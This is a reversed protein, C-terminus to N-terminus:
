PTPEIRWRKGNWAEALSTIDPYTSGGVAVCRTASTCSVSGLFNTETGAPKPSAQTTWTSGKWGLILSTGQDSNTGVATCVRSSTCSVGMLTSQGAAADFPTPEVVWSAGNWGEALPAFNGSAPTYTGVATCVRSSRCAVGRLQAATEGAPVPTAVLTWRRGDWREATAVGVSCVSAGLAEYCGSGGVAFCSRSSSCAVASLAGVGSRTPLEQWRRGNWRAIMTQRACPGQGYYDTCGSGYEYGGVAVCFRATTCAVGSLSSDQSALAPLPVPRLLWSKGNWTEAIAREICAPKDSGDCGEGLADGGVAVCSTKSTCSVASLVSSYEGRPRQAVLTTWAGRGGWREALTTPGGPAGPGSGVAACWDSAVCSVSSLSTFTTAGFSVAPVLALVMVVAAASRM